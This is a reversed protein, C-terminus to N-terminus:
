GDHRGLVAPVGVEGGIHNVGHTRLGRRTGLLDQTAEDLVDVVESTLNLESGSLPHHTNLEDVGNTGDGGGNAVLAVTDTIHDTKLRKNILDGVLNDSLLTEGGGGVNNQTGEPRGVSGEASQTVADDLVGEGGTLDGVHVTDDLVHLSARGDLVGNKVDPLGGGVSQVIELVRLLGLVVQTALEAGVLLALVVPVAVVGSGVRQGGVTGGTDKEIEHVTGGHTGSVDVQHDGVGVVGGNDVLEVGAGVGEEVDVGDESDLVVENNLELGLGIVGLGSEVKLVVDGHSELLVVGVGVRSRGDGGELAALGLRRQLLKTTFSFGDPM